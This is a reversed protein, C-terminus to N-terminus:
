DVGIGLASAASDTADVLEDLGAWLAQSLMEPHSRALERHLRRLPPLPRHDSERLAAALASLAEGLGVQLAVLEPLPRGAPMNAADLRLVHVGWVVRRLAALAAAAARPDTGDRPPESRALGIASDADAFALRARRALTRLQTESLHRGTALGGLVADLYTHQADVLRALLSGASLASWTPWLAYAALGIAGGVATDLGRALATQVTGPAVAHLLFVIVATLLAVGVTFSAPFVAYTFCALVGVVGVVGWGTPNLAVAVLTAIVVGLMTGLVREAGRTFTQGFGPRLVTAVAVVAWYARPLAVRAILLETLAVVVALRLAHRGSATHLDAGARMRRLDEVLGRGLRRSGRSPRGVPLPMRGRGPAHLAAALRAAATVQGILAALREDLAAAPLPERQAGWESLEAAEGPLAALTAADGEIAGVTLALMERVRTLVGASPEAALESLQPESRTLQGLVMASGVLELRIRRGEGVLDALAERDPDAFLAPAALSHEAADLAAAPPMSSTTLEAAFDALTRYAGALAQRQRRWALPVAVLAAFLSQAGAGALVLGTLALAHALSEPFRGFVIFGVVSQTGVVVGRRGLAAATGAMLCTMVLLLLHLWVVGSSLMGALAAAGLAAGAGIMTATPPVLPGDGARWAVGSLMAGVGMSVAAVPSGAATGLALMAAVPVAAVLGARTSIRARDFNGAERFARIVAPSRGAAGGPDASGGPRGPGATTSM